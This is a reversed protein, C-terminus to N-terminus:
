QKQIATIDFNGNPMRTLTFRVADNIQVQKLFAPDNAKYAMTMAPMVGPVNGHDLTITQKAPDIARVTGTGEGSNKNGTEGMNMGAMPNNKTFQYEADVLFAGQAAVEDGADLGSLIQYYNDSSLAGLTVSHSTFNDGGDHVWVFDGQGTRIVASAPIALSRGGAIPISANFTMQPRLKGSANSLAVRVRITKSAADEVPSVFIVRGTFRDTPYAPSTISISEGDRIFRIASEPVQIEAWVTSLDALQYISTGEDVYAGEQGLKQIVLGNAPALMLITNAVTGDDEIRRIQDDTLGLLKLREKGARVLGLHQRTHESMGQMGAMTQGKEGSVAILYEREANLIDPSYFEFLPQGAKVYAGSAAVFMHEIRGRARAAITHQAPEPIAISGVATVESSFERTEVPITAIGSRVITPNSLMVMAVSDAPTMTMSTVITTKTTIKHPSWPKLILLLAAIVIVIALVGVFWYNKSRSNTSTTTTTEM